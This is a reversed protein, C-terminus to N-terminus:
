FSFSVSCGSKSGFLKNAITKLNINTIIGSLIAARQRYVLRSISQGRQEQPM